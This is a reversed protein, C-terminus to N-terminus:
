NLQAMCSLEVRWRTIWKGQLNGPGSDDEVDTVTCWSLGALGLTPDDALLTEIEDVLNETSTDAAEPTDNLEDRVIVWIDQTWKENRKKRGAKFGAPEQESKFGGLAIVRPGTPEPGAAYEVVADDIGALLVLLRKKVAVKISASAM